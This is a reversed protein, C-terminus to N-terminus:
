DELPMPGYVVRDLEVLTATRKAASGDEIEPDLVSMRWLNRKAPNMTTDRLQTPPMEGLGKFRSVEIKGRDNFERAILLDKEADDRAYPGLAIGYWGGGLAFGNVDQLSESYSRIADEALALSPQAEIQVWVVEDSQARLAIAQFQFAIFVFTLLRIIKPFM